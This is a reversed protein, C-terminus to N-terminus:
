KSGGRPPEGVKLRHEFKQFKKKHLAVEGGPAMVGYSASLPQSTPSMSGNPGM